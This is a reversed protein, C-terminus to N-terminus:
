TASWNSGAARARGVAGAPGVPAGGVRGHGAARPGLRDARGQAPGPLRARLRLGGGPQHHGGPPWTSAPWACCRSTSSACTRRSRRAPAPDRGRVGLDISINLVRAGEPYDMGLFFIDSWASHSLDMRVPTTERLIPYPADPAPRTLLEPRVRLPQDSPIGSASCGSTAECRACAAACRTPWRRSASGTTPPPSRARSPSTRARRPRSACSSTSRRKLGGACCTTTATSPCSDASRCARNRPCTSAIFTTSSSCPACGSTCTTARGASLPGPRGCERWCSRPADRQAGVCGRVRNRM